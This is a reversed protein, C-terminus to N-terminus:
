PLASRVRGELVRAIQRSGNPSTHGLEDAFERPGLLTHLDVLSGGASETVARLMEIRQSFAAEDYLGARRLRAVPIPNVLVVSPVGRRSAREVTAALMRVVPSGRHIGEAYREFHGRRFSAGALDVPDEAPVIWHTWAGEALGARLGDYLRLMQEGAEGRQFRALLLGPLTIGREHLPLLMARPLERTPLMSALDTMPDFGGGRDFMRLHAVLILLSPDQALVEELVFYHHYFDFGPYRVARIEARDSLDRALITPYTEGLLITSDGMFVVLPRDPHLRALQGRLLERHPRAERGLTLAHEGGVFLLAGGALVAVTVAFAAAITLIRTM